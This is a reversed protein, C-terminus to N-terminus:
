NFLENTLKNFSNVNEETRDYVKIFLSSDSNAVLFVNGSHGPFREIIKAQSLRQIYDKISQKEKDGLLKDKEIIPNLNENGYYFYLSDCNYSYVQYWAYINLNTDSYLNIKESHGGWEGCESFRAEILFNSNRKTKGIELAEFFHVRENQVTNKCNPFLIFTLILKLLNQSVNM